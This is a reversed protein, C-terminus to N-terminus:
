QGDEKLIYERNTGTLTVRRIYTWVTAQVDRPPKGVLSAVFRIDDAAREYARGQPARENWDPDLLRMMWLDVTVANLDGTINAFFASVKPGRVYSLDGTTLIAWAKERNALFGSGTKPMRKHGAAAWRVFLTATARNAPWPTQPSLVAIVAACQEFTFPSAAALSDAHAGARDYWEVGDAHDCASARLWACLVRQQRPSLDSRNM